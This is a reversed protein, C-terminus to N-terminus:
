GNCMRITECDKLDWILWIDMEQLRIVSVGGNNLNGCETIGYNVCCGWVMRRTGCGVFGMNASHGDGTVAYSSCRWEEFEWM